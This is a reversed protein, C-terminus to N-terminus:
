QVREGYVGAFVVVDGARQYYCSKKFVGDENPKKWNYDFWGEADNDARIKEFLAPYWPQMTVPDKLGMLNKGIFKPQPGHAVITGNLDMMYVYSDKWVFPGKVDNVQRIAEEPGQQQIAQIVQAVKDVCEEKTAIDTAGVLSNAFMTVVFVSIAFVITRKM